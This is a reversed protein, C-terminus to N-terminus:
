YGDGRGTRTADLSGTEPSYILLFRDRKVSQLHACAGAAFLDDPDQTLLLSANRLRLASGEIAEAAEQVYGAM